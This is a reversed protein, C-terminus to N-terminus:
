KSGVSKNTAGLSELMDDLVTSTDETVVIRDHPHIAYDTAPDIRKKGRDYQVPIKHGGGQPLERYLELRVRRFKKLAKTQDLAQQVYTVDNLPM